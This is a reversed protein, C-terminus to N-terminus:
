GPSAPIAPLGIRYIQDGTDVQHHVNPGTAPHIISGDPAELRFDLLPGLPCIALVDMSVDSECIDFTIRHEEGPRLEGQPDVVIASQTITALIQVFYKTLMFRQEATTINGTILQYRAIAGLTGASVNTEDGLGIAYVQERFWAIAATVVPDTVSPSETENGDTMVVMAKIPYNADAQVTGLVVAGALIGSGIATWNRPTLAGSTIANEVAARGAGPPMVTGMQPMAPTLTAIMDDYTVLGVADDNRMLAAVVRLSSRLLDYKTGSVGASQSMSGSRDLVFTVAARPAPVSRASMTVNFTGVQHESGVVGSYYGETDDIFAGITATGPQVVGPAV